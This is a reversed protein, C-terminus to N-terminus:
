AKLRRNEADTTTFIYPKVMAVLRSGIAEDAELIAGLPYESSVITPLRNVYRSNIIDFMLQRDQEAMEGNKIAGKFLDDIYLWPLKSVGDIMEEYRDLDKYMVAKLRQIEKRYQWYHHECRLAQCIGICIHTKGIGPTGFYGIGKAKPDQLFKMALDKMKFATVSDTKFSDLTYNAYNEPTIGSKKLFRHMDRIERCDPCRYGSVVGSETHFFIVGSGGCRKCPFQTKESTEAVTTVMQHSIKLLDGIM